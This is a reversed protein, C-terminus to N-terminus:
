VPSQCLPQFPEFLADHPRHRGLSGSPFGYGRVQLREFRHSRLLRPVEYPYPARSLSFGSGRHLSVRFHMQRPSGPCGPLNRWVLVQSSARHLGRWRRPPSSGLSSLVWSLMSRDVDPLVTHDVVLEHVPALGQLCGVPEDVVFGLDFDVVGAFRSNRPSRNTLFAIGHLCRLSRCPARRTVLLFSQLTSIGPTDAPHFLGALHDASYVTLLNLFGSPPVYRTLYVRPLPSRASVVSYPGSVGHFSDGL